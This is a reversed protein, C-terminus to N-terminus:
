SQGQGEKGMTKIGKCMAREEHTRNKWPYNKEEKKQTPIKIGQIDRRARKNVGKKKKISTTKEKGTKGVCTCPKKREHVTREMGGPKRKQQGTEGRLWSVKKEPNKKRGKEKPSLATGKKKKLTELGRRLAENMRKRKEQHECNRTVKEECYFRGEKGKEEDTRDGVADRAINGTKEGETFLGQTHKRKRNVPIHTGGRGVWSLSNKRHRKGWSERNVAANGRM